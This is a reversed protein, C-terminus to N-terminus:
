APLNTGDLEKMLLNMYILNSLLEQNKTSATSMDFDGFNFKNNEKITAGSLLEVIHKDKFELDKPEHALINRMEVLKKTIEHFPLNVTRRNLSQIEFDFKKIIKDTEDIKVLKIIAFDKFLEDETFSKELKVTMNKQYDIFTSNGHVAGYYFYLKNKFQRQVSLIEENFIKRILKELEAFLSFYYSRLLAEIKFNEFEQENM